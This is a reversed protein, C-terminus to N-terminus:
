SDLLYGWLKHVTEKLVIFKDTRRLEFNRSKLSGGRHLQPNLAEIKQSPFYSNRGATLFNYWNRGSNDVGFMVLQTGRNTLFQMTQMSM